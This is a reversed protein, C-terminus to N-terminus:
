ASKFLPMVTAGAKLGDLYDAWAQMMIARPELYDAHNYTRRVANGEVHALQCEIHDAPYGMGNLLTSGTTRAAHPSFRGAWGISKLWQRIGADSMALERNDRHAFVHPRHGNVAHMRLLMAMAQKPLPVVHVRRKKMRVAPIRWVAADMDIEDWRMCCVENARGLTWWILHLANATNMGTENEDMDRLLQALEEPPLARKHQTKNAPLANRVLYAPNTEAKLTAVALDFVGVLSRKLEEAVTLGNAEGVAKLLALVEPAKVANVPVKGLKPFLLREFLRLRRAKTVDEWSKLKVWERAVVEVTNATATLREIRKLERDRVPSLGQKVLVKAKDREARAEALTFTGSARRAAAEDQSEGTPPSTYDGITYVSEKRRGESVVEFRYRWVKVGNPKVELYLGNSDALKYAADRPKAGRCGTDTLM